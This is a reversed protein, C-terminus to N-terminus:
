AGAFPDPACATEICLYDGEECASGLCFHVPPEEPVDDGDPDPCLFPASSDLTLDWGTCTDADIGPVVDQTGCGVGGYEPGTYQYAECQLHYAEHVHIAECELATATAGDHSARCVMHVGEEHLHLKCSDPTCDVPKPGAEVGPLFALSLSVATLVAWSLNRM